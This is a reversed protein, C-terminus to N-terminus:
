RKSHPTLHPQHISIIRNPCTHVGTYFMTNQQKWMEYIALLTRQKTRNLRSFTDSDLTGTFVLTDNRLWHLINKKATDVLKKGKHKRKIVELYAERIRFRNLKPVSGKTNRSVELNLHALFRSADELLDLDTPYKVEANACTADVKIDASQTYEKKPTDDNSDKNDEDKKKKLNKQLQLTFENIDEITIRKRITVFLSADFIPLPTYEELGLFYQIYPNEQIELITERDSLNMKHKVILAGIIM